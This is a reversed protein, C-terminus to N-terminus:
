GSRQAWVGDVPVGHRQLIASAQATVGRALIRGGGLVVPARCDYVGAIQGPAVYPQPADFQLVLHADGCCDEGTSGAQVAEEEQLAATAWQAPYAAALERGHVLRAVAPLLEDQRHRIRVRVPVTHGALLPAQLWSAPAQHVFTDARCVLSTSLALPHHQRAPAPHTAAVAVVGQRLCKGVIVYRAAQGPIRAGQGETWIEVDTEEGVPLGTDVDVFRGRSLRMYQPLWEPLRRKGIFCIGYSDKRGANPLGAAAAGARVQSKRLSGLPMHLSPLASAAVRCLFYSQDKVPDVGRLLLSSKAASNALSPPLSSLIHRHAADQPHAVTAYHGTAVSSAGSELCSRLFHGFKVYRNCDVDPNPTLGVRYGDLFPEFVDTWYQAELRVVKLRLGLHRAVDRASEEDVDAPCTETGAEDAADWNRM